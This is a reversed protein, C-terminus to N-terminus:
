IEVLVYNIVGAVLNAETLALNLLEGTGTECYGAPNYPLVLKGNDALDMVATLARGSAGTQLQATNVGGSAVLVLALVRIRQGAVAGVLTNDGDVDVSIAARQVESQTLTPPTLQATPTLGAATLAGVGPTISTM